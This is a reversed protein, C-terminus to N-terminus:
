RMLAHNKSEAVRLSRLVEDFSPRARLLCELAADFPGLATDLDDDRLAQALSAPQIRVPRFFSPVEDLVFGTNKVLEALRPVAHKWKRPKVFDPRGFRFGIQDVGAGCLSTLYFRDENGKGLVLVFLGDFKDDKETTDFTRWEPPAISAVWDYWGDEPYDFDSFWRQNKAWEGARLGLATFIRKEIDSIGEAARYLDALHGVIM